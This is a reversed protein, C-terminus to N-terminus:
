MAAPSRSKRTLRPGIDSGWRAIGCVGAIRCEADSGIMTGPERSWRPRNRAMRATGTIQNRSSRVVIPNRIRTTPRFASAARAEPMDTAPVITVTMPMEPATAPSAPATSTSPTEPTRVGDSADPRANSAIATASSAPPLGIAMRGEASSNPASRLPELKMCSCVCTEVSRIETTCAATITNTAAGISTRNMKRSRAPRAAGTLMVLPPRPWVGGSSPTAYHAADHGPQLADVQDAEGRRRQDRGRRQHQRGQAAHHALAGADDVDRELADHQRGREDAERDGVHRVVQREAHQRGDERAHEDRREVGHERDLEQHVLDDAAHDDVDERHADRADEVLRQELLAHLPRARERDPLDRHEPRDRHDPRDEELVAHHGVEHEHQDDDDVQHQEVGDPAQARAGAALVRQGALRRSSIGSVTMESLSTRTPRSAIDPFPCNSPDNSPSTAHGPSSSTPALACTRASMSAWSRTIAPWTCPLTTTCPRNFIVVVPLNSPSAWTPESM